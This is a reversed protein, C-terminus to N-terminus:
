KNMKIKNIIMKDDINNKMNEIVKYKEQLETALLLVKAINKDDKNEDDLVKEIFKDQPNDKM